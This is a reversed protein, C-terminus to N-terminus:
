SKLIFIKGFLVFVVKAKCVLIKAPITGKYLDHNGGYM